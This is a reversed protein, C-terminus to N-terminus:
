GACAKRTHQGCLTCGQAATSARLGRCGVSARRAAPASSQARVPCTPASSRRARRGAPRRRARGASWRRTGMPRRTQGSLGCPAWGPGAQRLPPTRPATHPALPTRARPDVPAPEDTINWPPGPLLGPLTSHPQGAAQLQNAHTSRCEHRGQWNAALWCFCCHLELGTHKSRAQEALPHPTRYEKGRACVKVTLLVRTIAVRNHASPNLGLAMTASRQKPVLPRGTQVDHQAARKEGTSHGATRRVPTGPHKGRAHRSRGVVPVSPRCTTTSIPHTKADPPMTSYPALVDKV